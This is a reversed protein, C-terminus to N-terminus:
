RHKDTALKAKPKETKGARGGEFVVDMTEVLRRAIRCKKGWFKPSPIASPEPPPMRRERQATPFVLRFGLNNNRNDPRNRNRNAARANRANNNWSGGRNM